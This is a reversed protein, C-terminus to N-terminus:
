GGDAGGQLAEAADLAGTNEDNRLVLEIRRNWSEGEGISLGPRFAGYGVAELKEGPIPGKDRLAMVVAIARDSSLDWNAKEDGLGDAYGEVRVGLGTSNLVRGVDGLVAYASPHLVASGPRFFVAEDLRVRVEQENHVMRILDDSIHESMAERLRAEVPTSAPKNQAPDVIRTKGLDSMAVELLKRELGSGGLAERISMLVADVKKNDEFSAMAMLLVFFTLLLTVLDSFTAMWLPAGKKCECGKPNPRGM